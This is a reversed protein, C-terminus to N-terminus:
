GGALGGTAGQLFETSAAEPEETEEETFHAYSCMGLLSNPLSLSGSACRAWLFHEAYLRWRCRSHHSGPSRNHCPDGLGM